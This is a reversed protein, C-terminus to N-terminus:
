KNAALLDLSADGWILEWSVKAIFNNAFCDLFGRSKKHEVPITGGSACTDKGIVECSAKWGDRALVEHMEVAWECVPYSEERATRVLSGTDMLELKGSPHARRDQGQTGLGEVACWGRINGAQGGYWM